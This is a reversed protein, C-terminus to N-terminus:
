AGPSAGALVRALTRIQGAHRTTHEAAHFLLGLVNAPLRARGVERADLLEADRFKAVDHLAAEIADEVRVALAAGDPRETAHALHTEARLAERQEDSLEAGRAYTVLRELAGALHAAHFGIPASGGPSAWVHEATLAELLRPLDERVQVLAHAVPQLLPEVGPVPGRLWVEPATM